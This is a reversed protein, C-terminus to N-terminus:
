PSGLADAVGVSGLAAFASDVSHALIMLDRVDGHQDRVQDALLAEPQFGLARFMGIAAEQDAVVEVVLKTLGLAPAERVAHQALARGIRRGRREPDVVVRVEGVHSSWGTLPFVGVYGVVDEGELALACAARRGRLWAAIVEPDDVDAKFFTRDGDPIRALFRGLATEHGPELRRIEM